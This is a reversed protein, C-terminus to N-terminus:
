ATLWQRMAGTVAEPREMTSLHGCHPVVVLNAGPILAAMEEHLHHPTLADEAGCLVLTPCAVAKLTESADKRGLIAQEQRLFAEKGTGEAMAMIAEVLATDKLRSDHILHPLLRLTVGKFAGKKALAMMDRRRTQQVANDARYNTDLLALHSIREPALRLMTLAVYGGMSLGALAFTGPMADLVSRAMAEMSSEATLDAVVPEAIDQLHAIQHRWLADDCLLGPLLVLPTRSM